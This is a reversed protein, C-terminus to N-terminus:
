PYGTVVAGLDLEAVVVLHDSPREASTQLHHVALVELSADGQPIFIYDFRKEHIM